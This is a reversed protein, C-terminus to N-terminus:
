SASPSMILDTKGIESPEEAEINRLDYDLCV